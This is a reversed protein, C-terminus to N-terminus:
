RKRKTLKEFTIKPILISFDIRFTFSIFFSFNNSISILLKQCSQSVYFFRLINLFNQDYSHDTWVLSHNHCEFIKSLKKKQLLKITKKKKKLM